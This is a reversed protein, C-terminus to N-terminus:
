PSRTLNHALNAYFTVTFLLFSVKRLLKRQHVKAVKPAVASLDAGCFGDDALDEGELEASKLPAVFMGLRQTTLLMTLEDLSLSELSRVASTAAGGAEAAAAAASKKEKAAMQRARYAAARTENAAAAARGAASKGGSKALRCVISRLSVTSPHTLAM